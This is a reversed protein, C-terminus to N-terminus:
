YFPFMLPMLFITMIALIVALPTGCKLYDKLTYGGPEIIMIQCPAAMPTMISICSATLVGVVAARPDIGIKMCASVVLPIFITLTALNSMIQPLYFISDPFIGGHDSVSENYKWDSQDDLGGRCGRCRYNQDGRIFTLVGAFYFSQRSIFPFGFAEKENLIGSLVLLFLALAHLM